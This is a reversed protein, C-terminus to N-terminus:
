QLSVCVHVGGHMCVCVHLFCVWVGGVVHLMLSYGLWVRVLCFCYDIFVM